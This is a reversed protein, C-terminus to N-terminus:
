YANMRNRESWLIWANVIEHIKGVASSPVPNEGTIIPLSLVLFDPHARIESIIWPVAKEKMRLIEQFAHHRVMDRAMSMGKIEARWLRVARNFKDFDDLESPRYTAISAVAHPRRRHLCRWAPPTGTDVTGNAYSM